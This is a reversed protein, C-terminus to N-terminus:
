CIFCIFMGSLHIVSISKTHTEDSVFAITYNTSVREKPIGSIIGTYKDLNLGDVLPPSISYSGKSNVSPIISEIKKNIM